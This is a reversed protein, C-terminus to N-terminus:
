NTDCNIVTVFHNPLPLNIVHGHPCFELYTNAHPAVEHLSIRFKSEKRKVATGRANAHLSMLVRQVVSRFLVVVRLQTM